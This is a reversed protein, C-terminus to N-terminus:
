VKKKTTEPEPYGVFLDEKQFGPMQANTSFNIDDFNIQQVIESTFVDSHKGSRLRRLHPVLQVCGGGRM